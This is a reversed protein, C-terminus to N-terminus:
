AALPALQTALALIAARGATGLTHTYETVYLGIYERLVTLDMEQAHQRIYAEIASDGLAAAALSARILKEFAAGHAAYVERRMVLCGLAVPLGTEATWWAGLDVMQQLGYRQYTLRAEHIVVGVDYEGRALAPMIEDYRRYVLPAADPAYRRFLAAGTTDAGPAVIRARALTTRAVGARTLVLPGYGAAVAAGVDLLVYRECLEGYLACSVKVIDFENERAAQNLTEIDHLELALSIEPLSLQGLAIAGVLYTDNPCPTLGFRLSTKM